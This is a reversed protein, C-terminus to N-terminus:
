DVIHNYDHVDKKLLPIHFFNHTKVIPPLALRYATPVVKDLIEFPGYFWSAIKACTGKRLSIKKPRIQLYV